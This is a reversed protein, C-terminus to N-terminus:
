RRAWGLLSKIVGGVTAKACVRILQQVVAWKLDALPYVAGAHGKFAIRVEPILILNMQIGNM